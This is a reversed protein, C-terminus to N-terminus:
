KIRIIKVLDVFPPLNKESESDFESLNLSHSHSGESSSGTSGINVSHDHSGGSGSFFTDIDILHSHRETPGLKSGISDEAYKSSLASPGGSDTPPPSVSHRHTSSTDTSDGSPDVTHTHDGDSSTATSSADIAHTHDITGGSNGVEGANNVGRVFQGRLDPVNEGFLPSAQDIVEQGNALIYGLPLADCDVCFWDLVAGIPVAPSVAQSAAPTGAPPAAEVEGPPMFTMVGAITVTLAVAIALIMITKTM